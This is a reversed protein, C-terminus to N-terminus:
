KEIISIVATDTIPGYNRSDTSNNKNDGMVFYENDKLQITAETSRSHPVGAKTYSIKHISGPPLPECNETDVIKGNIKITRFSFEVFDGPVGVIRKISTINSPDKFKIITNKALMLKNVNRTDKSKVIIQYNNYTPYMSKGDVITIDTNFYIIGLGILTFAEIIHRIGENFQNPTKIFGEINGDNYKIIVKNQSSVITGYSTKTTKKM